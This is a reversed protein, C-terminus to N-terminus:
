QAAPQQQRWPCCGFDNDYNVVHIGLEDVAKFVNRCLAVDNLCDDPLHRVGDLWRFM